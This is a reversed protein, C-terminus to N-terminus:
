RAGTLLHVTLGPGAAKAIREDGTILGAVDPEVSATALVLADPMRLTNQSRLQAAVEAVEEDVPMVTAILDGFFGRVVKEDHHGSLAGTLIEALTIASTVLSDSAAAKGVEEVASGHLADSRDLFGIIADADLAVAV